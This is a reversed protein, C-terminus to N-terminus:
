DSGMYLPVQTYEKRPIETKASKCGGLALAAAAVVLVPAIRKM